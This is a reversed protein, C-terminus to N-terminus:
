RPKSTRGRYSTACYFNAADDTSGHGLYRAVKPYACLPRTWRSGDERTTSAAVTAPAVGNEVWGIVAGLPDTLVPGVTGAPGGCHGVGPALFLRAFSDTRRQGGSTRVVSDYYHTAGQPPILPDALGTWLLLKGGSDRFAGLDPDDSQVETFEREGRRYLDVYQDTTMTTWDFAPDQALWYKYWGVAIYLPNAALYTFSSGPELGFWLSRGHDRPGQLIEGIIKADTATIVGCPTRHGVLTRPDFHCDSVDAVLGDTVGDLPDCTAVSAQYFATLKCGPLQDGARQQVFAPWLQGPAMKNFDVAPSGAVIGNYDGPYRQAETLAQRGGMSCGNFYAHQAPHGYFRAILDKGSTTMDHVARFGFDDIARQDLRGDPGLAFQGWAQSAPHGSDTSTAAFGARIAAALSRYSFGAVFGGGGVGELRGNWSDDPLWAAFHVAGHSAPDASVLEVACYSPLADFVDGVKGEGPGGQGEPVTFRGSTNLVASTVTAGQIHQGVLASCKGTPAAVARPTASPAIMLLAAVAAVVANTRAPRCQRTRTPEWRFVALSVVLGAVAWSCLVLVDHAPPTTGLLAHGIADVIPRVPLYSAITRVWSEKVPDGVTGSFLVVPLYTLGLIPFAGAVTPILGTVATAASACAIAGLAISALMLVTSWADLGVGFFVVGTLVAVAGALVAVLVSAAIQATLYCWAPMPTARWRKMVGSERAAVLGIGHTTWAIMTTGLVACGALREPSVRGDSSNLVLLLVPLVLGTSMARPTRLLLRLQHGLQAVLLPLVSPLRDPASRTMTM